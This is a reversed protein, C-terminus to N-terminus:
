GAAPLIILSGESPQGTTEAEVEIPVALVEEKHAGLFAPDVLARLGEAALVQLGVFAVGHRHVGHAPVREVRPDEERRGRVPGHFHPIVLHFQGDHRKVQPLCDAVDGPSGIRGRGEGGDRGIPRRCGGASHHMDIVERDVAVLADTLLLDHLAGLQRVDGEVVVLGNEDHTVVSAAHVGQLQRRIETEAHHPRLVCIRGDRILIQLDLLHLVEQLHDSLCLLSSAVIQEFTNKRREGGARQM